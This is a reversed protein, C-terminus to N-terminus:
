SGEAPAEGGGVLAKSDLKRADDPGGAYREWSAPEGGPQEDLRWLDGTAADLLFTDVSGTVLQFRPMGVSGNDINDHNCAAVACALSLAGAVLLRRSKM